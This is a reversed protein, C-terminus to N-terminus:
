RSKIHAFAKKGKDGSGRGMVFFVSWPCYAICTLKCHRSLGVFYSPVGHCVGCLLFNTCAGWANPVLM